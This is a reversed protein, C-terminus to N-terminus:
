YCRCQSSFHDFTKLRHHLLIMFTSTVYKDQLHKMNSKFIIYSLM